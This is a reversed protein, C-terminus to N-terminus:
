LSIEEGPRVLLASKVTLAKAKDDDYSYVHRAEHPHSHHAQDGILDACEM